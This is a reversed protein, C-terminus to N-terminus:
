SFTFCKPYLVPGTPDTLQFITDVLHKMVLFSKDLFFFQLGTCASVALWTCAHSTHWSPPINISLFFFLHSLQFWLGKYYVYLEEWLARQIVCPALVEGLLGPKEM